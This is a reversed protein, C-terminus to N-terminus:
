LRSGPKITMSIDCVLEVFRSYRVSGTDNGGFATILDTVDNPSLVINLKMLCFKFQSFTMLGTRKKDFSCFLQKVYVLKDKTSPYRDDIRHRIDNLVICLESSIHHNPLKEKSWFGSDERTLTKSSSRKLKMRIPFESYGIIPRIKGPYWGSYGSIFNKEREITLYDPLAPSPDAKLPQPGSHGVSTRCIKNSNTGFLSNSSLPKERPIDEVIDLCIQNNDLREGHRIDSFVNPSVSRGNVKGPFWGSYGTIPTINRAPERYGFIFGTASKEKRKSSSPSSKGFTSSHSRKFFRKSNLM